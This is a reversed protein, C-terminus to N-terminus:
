SGSARLDAGAARVVQRQRVPEGAAGAGDRHLERHQLLGAGVQFTGTPKEVIEVNVNILEDTEGQETSIDVREFYGLSSIRRKSRELGTESFLKREEIEMERRIV